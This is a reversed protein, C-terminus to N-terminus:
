DNLKIQVPQLNDDVAVFTAQGQTVKVTQGPESYRDAYVTIAVCMSTNGIRKTEGYFSVIDGVFVPKHFEIADM